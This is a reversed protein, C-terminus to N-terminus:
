QLCAFIHVLPLFPMHKIYDLIVQRARGSQQKEFDQEELNQLNKYIVVDLYYCSSILLVLLLYVLVVFM